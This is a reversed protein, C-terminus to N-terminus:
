LEDLLGFLCLKVRLMDSVLDLELGLVVLEDFLDLQVFLVPVLHESLFFRFCPFVINVSFVQRLSLLQNLLLSLGISLHGLMLIHQLLDLSHLSLNLLVTKLFKLILLGNM